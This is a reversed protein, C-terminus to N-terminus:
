LAEQKLAAILREMLAVRNFPTMLYFGDAYPAAARAMELSIELGLAEGQARDAGEYRRIIAEDVHIGNIENEMYLANRQSVVPLIGALIKADPLAARAAKLNDVAAESLVPQTLFGAMGSAQKEQARRLEVDFNRANLNLAGFVTMGPLAEGPGALSHIYRALKRSNFQYVNKVEDREATPIPDGTIALVERVGEAYLGLLLAKTANLNRDRCTMHPLAVMGLERRLKCATLSSDVRARAIPCDAVTVADAGAAQLRRAGEVYGSLDADKPSDLEVAIVKEGRALKQLFPDAPTLLPTDAPVDAAPASAAIPMPTSELAQRLAAIHAPTTGCCGGLIVGGRQRIRCLERAFYDPRGQYVVRSRTVLPYGGNPMASVPLGCGTVAPLVSAMASPALLCNLGVADVHGCRAMHAALERCSRGERTYGDPLAAFSVLIFAEPRREKIFAAAEAVGEDTSLTEFLFNEAGLDLFVQAAARYTQAAPAADTAPAPGLDAFVAAGTGEAARCALRWGAAALEQWNDLGAAAMRPLGFTNTKIAEAGADLYERHVALIGEPDALNAQECEMGPRGKYYTGMGGDFVLVRDRLIDRANKM